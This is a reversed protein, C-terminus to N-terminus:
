SKGVYEDLQHPTSDEMYSSEVVVKYKAKLEINIVKKSM